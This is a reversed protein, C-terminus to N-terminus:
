ARHGTDRRCAHCITGQEKLLCAWRSGSEGVEAMKELSMAKQRDREGRGRGKKRKKVRREIFEVSLSLRHAREREQGCEEGAM